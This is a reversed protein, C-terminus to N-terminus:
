FFSKPLVVNAPDALRDLLQLSFWPKFSYTEVELVYWTYEIRFLFYNKLIKRVLKDVNHRKHFNFNYILKEVTEFFRM